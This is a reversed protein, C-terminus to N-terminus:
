GKETKEIERAETATVRRSSVEGTSLDEDLIFYTGLETQILTKCHMQGTEADTLINSAIKM